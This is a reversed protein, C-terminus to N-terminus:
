GRTWAPACRTLVWLRSLAAQLRLEAGGMLCASYHGWGSGWFRHVRGATPILVRDAKSLVTDEASLM